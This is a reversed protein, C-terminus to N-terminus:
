LWFDFLPYPEIKQIIQIDKELLFDGIELNIEFDDTNKWIFRKM